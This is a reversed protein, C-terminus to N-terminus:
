NLHRTHSFLQTRFRRTQSYETLYACLIRLISHRRFKASGATDACTPAGARYQSSAPRSRFPFSFAPSSVDTQTSPSYATQEGAKFELNAGSRSYSGLSISVLHRAAM